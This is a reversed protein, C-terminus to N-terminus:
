KCLTPTKRTGWGSRQKRLTPIKVTVRSKATFADRTMGLEGAPPLSGHSSGAQWKGAM